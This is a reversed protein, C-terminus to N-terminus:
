DVTFQNDSYLFFIESVDYLHKPGIKAHPGTKM